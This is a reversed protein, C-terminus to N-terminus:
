SRSKSFSNIFMAMSQHRWCWCSYFINFNNSIMSVHEFDNLINFITFKTSVTCCFNKLSSSIESNIPFIFMGRQRLREASMTIGTRFYEIYVNFMNSVMRYLHQVHEFGNSIFTFMNSVMRYLHSCTRFWKFFHSFMNPVTWYSRESSKSDLIKSPFIGSIWIDFSLINM